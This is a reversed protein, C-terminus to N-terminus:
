QNASVIAQGRNIATTAADILASADVNPHDRVWRDLDNVSSSANRVAAQLPVVVARKACPQPTGTRCAPLGPSIPRHQADEGNWYHQAGILLIDYSYHVQALRQQTVPNPVNLSVITGIAQVTQCGGLALPLLAILYRAKM